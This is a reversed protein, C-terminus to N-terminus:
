NRNRWGEGKAINFMKETEKLNNKKEIQRGDRKKKKRHRRRKGNGGFELTESEDLGHVVVGESLVPAVRGLVDESAMEVEGGSIDKSEGELVGFHVEGGVVEQLNLERM